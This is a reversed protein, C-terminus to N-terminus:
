DHEKRKHAARAAKALISKMEEVTANIVTYAEQEEERNPKSVQISKILEIIRKNEEGMGLAYAQEMKGTLIKKICEVKNKHQEYALVTQPDADPLIPSLATIKDIEKVAEVKAKSLPNM